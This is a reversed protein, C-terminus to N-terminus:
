KVLMRVRISFGNFIGHVEMEVKAFAHVCLVVGCVCVCM